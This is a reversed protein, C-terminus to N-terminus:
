GTYFYTGEFSGRHGCYGSQEDDTAFIEVVKLTDGQRTFRLDSGERSVIGEMTLVGDQFQAIGQQVTCIWRATYPDAGSGDVLFRDSGVPKLSISNFFNQWKAGLTRSSDPRRVRALFEARAKMMSAIGEAPEMTTVRRYYDGKEAAITGMVRLYSRQDTRLAAKGAADLRAMAAGYHASVQRDLAALNPRACILKELDTTARACDFSPRGQRQSTKASLEGGVGLGTLGLGAITIFTAAVRFNM